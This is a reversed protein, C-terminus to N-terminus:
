QNEHENQGSTRGFCGLGGSGSLIHSFCLFYSNFGRFFDNFCFNNSRIDVAHTCLRTIRDCHEILPGTNLFLVEILNESGEDVGATHDNFRFRCTVLCQQVGTDLSTRRWVDCEPVHGLQGLILVEQNRHGIQANM